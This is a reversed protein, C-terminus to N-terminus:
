KLLSVQSTIITGCSFWSLLKKMKEKKRPIEHCNGPKEDELLDAQQGKKDEDM